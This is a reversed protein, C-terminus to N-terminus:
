LGNHGVTIDVLNEDSMKPGFYIPAPKAPDPNSKQYKALPSYIPENPDSMPYKPMPSVSM